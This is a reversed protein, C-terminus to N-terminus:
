RKSSCTSAKSCGGCSSHCGGGNKKQNKMVRLVIGVLAVVLFLIIGDAYNM